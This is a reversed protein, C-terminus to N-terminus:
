CTIGHGDDSIDGGALFISNAIAEMKNFYDCISLSGKKTAQLHTKLPMLGAKSRVAFRQEVAIWMGHSSRIRTVSRLITTSLSSLLWSLFLQDERLWQIYKPNTSKTINGQPDTHEVFEKPCIKMGFVFGELNHGIVAPLVQSRWVSYNDKDLKLSIASSLTPAFHSSAASRLIESSSSSIGYFVM